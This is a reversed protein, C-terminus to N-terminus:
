VGKSRIHLAQEEKKLQRSIYRGDQYIGDKNQTDGANKKHSKNIVTISCMQRTVFTRLQLTVNNHSLIDGLLM